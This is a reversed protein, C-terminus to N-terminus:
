IMSVGKACCVRSTHVNRCDHKLSSSHAILFLVANSAYFKNNYKYVTISKTEDRLTITKCIPRQHPTQPQEEPEPEEVFENINAVFVYEKGGDSLTSPRNSSPQTCFSPNTSRYPHTPFVFTCSFSPLPSLLSGRQWVLEIQRRKMRAKRLFATSERTASRVTRALNLPLLNM